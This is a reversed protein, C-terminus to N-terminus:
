NVIRVPLSRIGRIFNSYLRQSPGTIEFRLDRQLIEEWLIRLRDGVCRHVGAGFSLHQRPKASRYLGPDSVDISGLRRQRVEV